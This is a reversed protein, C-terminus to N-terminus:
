LSGRLGSDVNGNSGAYWGYPRNRTGYDYGGSTTMPAPQPAVARPSYPTAAPYAPAAQIPAPANYTPAAAYTQTTHGQTAHPVKVAHSSGNLDNVYRNNHLSGGGLPDNGNCTQPGVSYLSGVMELVAREVVSRVALQIPELAKEGAGVDILNGGFFDFVGARLERGIIQKQYSIVDVVELTSTRVLRLDLGVNLVYQKAVLTATTGLPNEESFLGDLGGSRINFNLETIGGVLYYDSGPIQGAHVQRYAGKEGTDGILKNNAYKLELESVGTDFREVLRVGSKALASIAMLAAGQTVKRGGEFEEKGTYDAIQGVAIRPGSMGQSRVHRSLCRLATSYPTENSIVPANGIPTAYTGSPGAVPSICGALALAGFTLAIGRLPTRTKTPSKTLISRAM